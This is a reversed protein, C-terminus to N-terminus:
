RRVWRVLSELGSSIQLAPGVEGPYDFRPIRFRAQETRSVQRPAAYAQETTLAARIGQGVLLEVERDGFDGSQGNPYAFIPLPSRVEETVRKWSNGIEAAAAKDDLRALIPHSVTHPGFTFGRRELARVEDWSLPAFLPPPTEPVRVQCQEALERIAAQRQSISVRKCDAWIREAVALRQAPQLDLTGPGGLPWEITRPSAVQLIWDIQDWWLWLDGDLFGTALFVTAPCDYAAFADAGLELFDRYGDDITFAVTPKEFPAGEELREVVDWLGALEYGERRLADLFSRLQEVDESDHLPEDAHFRHLLFITARGNLFRHWIRSLPARGLARRLPSNATRKLPPYTSALSLIGTHPQLRRVPIGHRAAYGISSLPGTGTVRPLTTGPLPAM